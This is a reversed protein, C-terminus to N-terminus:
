GLPREYYPSSIITHHVQSPLSLPYPFCATRWSEIEPTARIVTCSLRLGGASCVALLLLVVLPTRVPDRLSM